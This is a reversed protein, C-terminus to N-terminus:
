PTSSWMGEPAPRALAARVAAFTSCQPNDIWDAVEIRHVGCWQCWWIDPDDGRVWDHGDRIGMSALQGVSTAELAEELATERTPAPGASGAEARQRLDRAISLPWPDAYYAREILSAATENLDASREESAARSLHFSGCNCAAIDCRRYGERELFALVRDLELTAGDDHDRM